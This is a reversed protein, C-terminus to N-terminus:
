KQTHQNLFNRSGRRYELAERQIISFDFHGGRFLNKDIVESKLVGISMTITDIGINKLDFFGVSCRELMHTKMKIIIFLFNTETM